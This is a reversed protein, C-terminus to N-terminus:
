RAGKRAKRRMAIVLIAILGVVVGIAIVASLAGSGGGGAPTGKGNGAFPSPMLKHLPVEPGVWIALEYPKKDKTPSKVLVMAPGETTFQTKSISGDPKVKRDWDKSLDNKVLLNMPAAHDGSLLMVGVPTAISLGEIYFAVGQDDAEGRYLAVKGHKALEPREELVVKTIPVPPPEEAGAPSALALFVIAFAVRAARM